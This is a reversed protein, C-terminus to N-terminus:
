AGTLHGACQGKRETLLPGAKSAIHESLSIAPQGVAVRYGGTDWVGSAAVWVHPHFHDAVLSPADPAPKVRVEEQDNLIGLGKHVARLSDYVGTM